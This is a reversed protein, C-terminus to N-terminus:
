SQNRFAELANQVTESKAPFSDALAREVVERQSIRLYYALAQIQEKYSPQLNTYFGEMKEKKPPTPERKKSASNSQVDAGSVFSDIAGPDRKRKPISKFKKTEM